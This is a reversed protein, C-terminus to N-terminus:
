PVASERTATATAARRRYAPTWRARLRRVLLSASFTMIAFISFAALASLVMPTRPMPAFYSAIGISAAYTFGAHGLNALVAVVARQDPFVGLWATGGSGAGFHMYMRRLDLDRMTIWGLAYGFVPPTARSLPTFMEERRAGSLLQTRAGPLLSSGFRALDESTSLMGGSAWRASPDTPPSPHVQGDLVYPTVHDYFKAVGPAPAHAHELSTHSLDLPNWLNERMVQEFPQKAAAQMVASLLVFGYSSYVHDTGPAFLLSDDAFRDLSQVVDTYRHTTVAENDDHYHRIGARHSALLRATIGRGAHPYSPLYREIAADLDLRSREALKMMAAATMPKSVSAIRFRTDACAPISDEADAFGLGESWVVRGDIAVTVAMGPIRRAEMMSRAQHRAKAVGKAYRPDSPTKVCSPIARTTMPKERMLHRAFLRWAGLVLLMGMAGGILAHRFPSSLGM